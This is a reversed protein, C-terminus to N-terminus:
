GIKVLHLRSKEEKRFDSRDQLFDDVAKRCGSWAFYDDIILRGGMVLVPWMRQLCTMVSEYWDCDIHAVAIAPLDVLTEEFLGQVLSVNTDAVPVSHREFNAKVKRLLDTEYGYYGNGGIGKSLGNVIDQYRAHVDADDKESPPPIMGFVDFVRLERQEGKAKAMLIASGGLACGAEVLIGERKESEAKEVAHRIDVMAYYDLYTLREKRIRAIDSDKGFLPGQAKIHRIVKQIM